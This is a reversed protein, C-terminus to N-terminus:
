ATIANRRRSRLTAGVLGFGGIMMAWTAPEPVADYVVNDGTWYGDNSALGTITFATGTWNFTYTTLTTDITLPSGNVDITNPSVTSYWSVALDISNLTFAGGGTKTITIADVPSYGLILNNTGNSNPSAGDWVYALGTGGYTFDLGGSTVTTFTNFTVTVDSFDVVTVAQASTALVSAAALALLKIKM